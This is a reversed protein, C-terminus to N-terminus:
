NGAYYSSLTTPTYSSLCKNYYSNAWPSVECNAAGYENSYKGDPCAYCAANGTGKAYRGPPCDDCSHQRNSETAMMKGAPCKTCWSAYGPTTLSFTGSTYNGCTQCDEIYQGAPCSCTQAYSSFLYKNCCVAMYNVPNGYTYSSLCSTYCNVSFLLCSWVLFALCTALRM